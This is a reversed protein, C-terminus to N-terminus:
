FTLSASGVTGTITLKTERGEVENTPIPFTIMYPTSFRSHYTYLGQVENTLLKIKTAKGELRRGGVDMFIKWLTQNKNLDDHKKEPTYFSVFVETSKQSAELRKKKEEEFKSTNWQYLRAMQRLQAEILVNRLLSGSMNVTNYLGNYTEINKTQSDLVKDYDSQSIINNEMGPQIVTVCSCLSLCLIFTLLLRM